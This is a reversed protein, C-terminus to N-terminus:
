HLFQLTGGALCDVDTVAIGVGARGPMGIDYIGLAGQIFVTNVLSERGQFITIEPINQGAQLMFFLGKTQASGIFLDPM